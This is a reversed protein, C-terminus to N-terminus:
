ALLDLTSRQIEDATKLSSLNIAFSNQASSLAVIEASLDAVDANAGNTASTGGTALANAVSNLQTEAQQLGQLAIASLDM